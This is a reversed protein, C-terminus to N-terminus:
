KNSADKVWDKYISEYGTPAIGTTAWQTFGAIGTAFRSCNSSYPQSLDQLKEASTATRLNIKENVLRTFDVMQKDFTKLHLDKNKYADKVKSSSWFSPKKLDVIKSRSNKVSQYKTECDKIIKELGTKMEATVPLANIKLFGFITITLALIKIKNM